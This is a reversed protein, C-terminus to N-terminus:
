IYYFVVFYSVIAYLISYFTGILFYQAFSPKSQIYSHRAFGKCTIIFGILAYQGTALCISYLIREFNGIHGGANKIEENEIEENPKIQNYLVKFTINAPKLSILLFFLWRFYVIDINIKYAWDYLENSKYSAFKYSLIVIIVLHIIQNIIYLLSYSVKTKKSVFGKLLDIVFHSVGIIIGILFYWLNLGYIFGPILMLMQYILSHKILQAFDRSKSNSMERTQFYFDGLIHAILFFSLLYPEM